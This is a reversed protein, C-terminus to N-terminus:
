ALFIQLCHRGTVKTLSFKSECGDKDVVHRGVCRINLVNHLHLEFDPVVPALQPAGERAALLLHGVRQVVGLVAVLVLVLAEGARHAGQGQGAGGLVGGVEAGLVAVVEVALVGVRVVEERGGGLPLVRRGGHRPLGRRRLLAHRAGGGGGDRLHVRRQGGRGGHRGRGVRGGVGHRGLLGHGRRGGDVEALRVHRVDGLGDAVHGDDLVRLGADRGGGGM